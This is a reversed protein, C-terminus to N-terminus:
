RLSNICMNKTNKHASSFGKLDIDFKLFTIPIYLAMKKGHQMKRLFDKRGSQPDLLIDFIGNNYSHVIYTCPIKKNDIVIEGGSFKMHVEKYQTQYLRLHIVISNDSCENNLYYVLFSFPPNGNSHYQVHYSDCSPGCNIYCSLWNYYQKQGMDIQTPFANTSYCLICIMLFFYIKKM